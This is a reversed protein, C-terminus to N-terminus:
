ACFNIIKTPSQHFTIIGCLTKKSRHTNTDPHGLEIQSAISEYRPQGLSLKRPSIDHSTSMPISTKWHLHHCDRFLDGANLLCQASAPCFQIQPFYMSFKFIYVYYVTCSHVHYIVSVYMSLSIHSSICIEAIYQTQETGSLAIRSLSPKVNHYM